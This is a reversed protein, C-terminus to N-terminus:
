RGDISQWDLTCEAALSIKIFHFYYWRVGPSLIKRGIVGQLLYMMRPFVFGRLSRSTNAWRPKVKAERRERSGM